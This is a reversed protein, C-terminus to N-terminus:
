LPGVQLTIGGDVAIAQGTLNEGDASSLFVTLKGIDEPGDVDILALRTGEAALCRAIGAGIGRAGGSSGSCSPAPNASYKDSLLVPLPRL